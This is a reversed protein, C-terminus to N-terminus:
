KNAHRLESVLVWRLTAKVKSKQKLDSVFKKHLKSFRPYPNKIYNQFANYSRISKHRSRRLEHVAQIRYPMRNFADMKFGQGCTRMTCTM